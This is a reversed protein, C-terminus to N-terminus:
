KKRKPSLKAIEVQLVALAEAVNGHAALYQEAQKAVSKMQRLDGSAVAQQIATGYPPLPGTPM